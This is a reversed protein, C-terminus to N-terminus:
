RGARDEGPTVCEEPPKRRTGERQPVCVVEVLFPEASERGEPGQDPGGEARQELRLVPIAKEKPNGDEEFALFGSAGPVRDGDMVQFMGGVTEGNVPIGSRAAMRAGHVATLVADHAMMAQGDDRSDGPFLEALRKPRKEADKSAEGAVPSGEDEGGERFYWITAPSVGRSGKKWMDPHALGTYLVRIGNRAAQEMEDSTLNTTDDGTMVTFKRDQCRSRNALSNLFRTLHRGRGAFYIVDHKYDCMQGSIQSLQTEWADSLSSDFVKTEVVLEPRRGDETFERTFDGSLTSAYLNERAKDEVVMVRHGSERKRLYRAAAWAENANTPAVRVFGEMERINTATMTGAVTAVGERSLRQVAQQNRQTSPGLGTVAVLREGSKRGILEGVTHEWYRSGSGVNAVLLRVLPKGSLDWRNARRQALYAGQLEHKVSEVPNSDTEGPTLTTMYAISVYPAGRESEKAVFENEAKIMRMVDDFEGDFSYSGDTVGVCEGSSGKKVVGDACRAWWKYAVPLAVALVALVVAAVAVRRATRLSVRPGAM